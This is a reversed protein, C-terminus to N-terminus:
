ERLGAVNKLERDLERATLARKKNPVVRAKYKPTRLDRKIPDRRLYSPFFDKPFVM